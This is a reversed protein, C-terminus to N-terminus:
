GTAGQVRKLWRKVNEGIEFGLIEAHQTYAFLAIDAISHREGVFWEGGEQNLHTEMVGIAAQGADRMQQIQPQNQVEM